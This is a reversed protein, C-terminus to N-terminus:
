GQEITLDRGVKGRLYRVKADEAVAPGHGPVFLLNGSRVASVYNGAAPPKAPLAFGM